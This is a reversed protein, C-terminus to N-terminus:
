NTIPQSKWLVVHFAKHVEKLQLRTQYFIAHSAQAQNKESLHWTIWVAWSAIGAIGYLGWTEILKGSM